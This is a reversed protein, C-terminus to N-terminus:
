ALGSARAQELAMVSWDMQAGGHAIAGLLRDRCVEASPLPTQVAAGAALVLTVDKLALTATFGVKDYARDAIIRSYGEYAPCAFLGDTLIERLAERDAGSKEVLSFAEGMVEIACALVFNNTLKLLSAAGPDTGAAFTRRGLADFLPRVRAIADAPGGAIIGLRGAVVAEPRGIVPAAVLTQGASAHAEALARIAGIQHTGMAVHVGGPALTGILGGPGQAVAALAADDALMTIVVGGHAAAEGITQAVGAGLGALETLKSPTRNYLVLDHGADLVRRAMAQGMRGLGIFAVKV